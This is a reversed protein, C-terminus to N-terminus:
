VGHSSLQRFYEDGADRWTWREARQRAARGMAFLRSRDASLEKLSAVLAEVSREEVIWGDVGHTICEPGGGCRTTLVPVGTCMAEQIVMGFGDGLTPFVLVDAAAYEAALQERPINPVHTFLGEYNALFSPSLSMRGVLRLEADKLAARKWAELLYPTGKRLDHGGVSLIRLPGTPPRERLPFDDVPFGYPVTVIPTKVDLRELSSRTFKSATVILSALELERDKRAFKWAGESQPFWEQASPWRKREARWMEAITAYHPLPLDWLRALGRRRAREFTEKAGDEYAYVATLDKAWPLKAAVVDHSVFVANYLSVRGSRAALRACLEVGALSKLRTPGIEGVARNGVPFKKELLRAARERRGGEPYAIGTMYGSLAAHRELGAAVGQSFAAAHPHSVLVQM